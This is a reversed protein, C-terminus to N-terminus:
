QVINQKNLIKRWFKEIQEYSMDLISALKKLTLERNGLYQPTVVIDFRPVNHVLLENNRSYVMGRPAPINERRLRNELSYMLMADGRYIQLFWLRSLILAFSFVIIGGIADLRKKHSRVVDNEDFM